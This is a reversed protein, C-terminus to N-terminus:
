FQVFDFEDGFPVPEIVPEPQVPFLELQIGVMSKAADTMAADYAQAMERAKKLVPAPTTAEIRRAETEVAQYEADAAVINLAVLMQVLHDAALAANFENLGTIVWLGEVCRVQMRQLLDATEGKRVAAQIDLRDGPPGLKYQPKQSTM